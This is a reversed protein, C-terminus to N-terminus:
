LGRHHTAASLAEMSAYFVVQGEKKAGDILSQASASVGISVLALSVVALISSFPRKM